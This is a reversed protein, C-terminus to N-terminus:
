AARCRLLLAGAAIVLIYLPEFLSSGVTTIHVVATVLLTDFFIQGYLFLKGPQRGLGYTYWLGAFTVALSLLLTLTALLTTSAPSDFWAGVAGVFIGLALTIRGVYLWRLMRLPHVM